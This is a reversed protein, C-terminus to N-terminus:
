ITTAKVPRPDDLVEDYTKLTRRIVIREDFKALAKARAALGLKRAQDAVVPHAHEGTRAHVAVPERRL